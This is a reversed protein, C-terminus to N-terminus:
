LVQAHLASRRRRSAAHRHLYSPGHKTAFFAIILFSTIRGVGSSCTKRVYM